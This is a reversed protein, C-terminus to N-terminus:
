DLRLEIIRRDIARRSVQFHNVLKEFINSDSKSRLDDYVKKFEDEPMLLNAAFQNAREEELSDVENTRYTNYFELQGENFDFLYHALEHAITFRQHGLSDKSNVCILKNAGFKEKVENGIVIYGSLENELEQQGVIFGLEKMIKIIPIPFEKTKLDDIITNAIKSMNMNKIENSMGRIKDILVQDMNKMEKSMM